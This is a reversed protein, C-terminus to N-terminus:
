SFFDQQILYFKYLIEYNRQFELASKIGLERLDIGIKDDKNERSLFKEM